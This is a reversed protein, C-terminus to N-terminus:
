ILTYSVNKNETIKNILKANGEVWQAKVVVDVVIISDIKMM